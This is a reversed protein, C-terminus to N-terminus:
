YVCLVPQTLTFCFNLNECKIMNSFDIFLTQMLSLSENQWHLSTCDALDLFFFFNCCTVVVPKLLQILYKIWAKYIPILCHDCWRTICSRHSFTDADPPVEVYVLLHSFLIKCLLFVFYVLSNLHIHLHKYTRLTMFQNLLTIFYVCTVSIFSELLPLSRMLLSHNERMLFCVTSTNFDFHMKTWNLRWRHYSIMVTVEGCQVEWVRINQWNFLTAQVRM